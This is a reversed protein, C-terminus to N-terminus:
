LIQVVNHDSVSIYFWLAVTRCSPTLLLCPTQLSGWHAWTPTWPAFGMSASSHIRIHSLKKKNNLLYHVYLFLIKFPPPPPVQEPDARPLIGSKAELIAPISSKCTGMCGVGKKIKQFDQIWWQTYAMSKTLHLKDPTDHVLKITSQKQLSLITKRNLFAYIFSLIKM